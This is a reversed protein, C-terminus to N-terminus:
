GLLSLQVEIRLIARTRGLEFCPESRAGVCVLVARGGCSAGVEMAEILDICGEQVVDVSFRSVGRRGSCSAM